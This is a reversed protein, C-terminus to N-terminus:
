REFFRIIQNDKMAIKQLDKIRIIPSYFYPLLTLTFFDDLKNQEATVNFTHNTDEYRSASAIITYNSFYDYTGNDYYWETIEQRPIWGSANTTASFEQSGNIQVARVNANNLPDGSTDNVYAKYYWKRTLYYTESGSGDFFSVNGTVNILINNTITADGTLIYYRIGAVTNNLTITDRITNNNNGSSFYLGALNEYLYCNEVVNNSGMSIGYQKQYSSCNNRNAYGNYGLTLANSSGSSKIINDTINAYYSGLLSVSANFTTMNYIFSYYTNQFDIGTSYGVSGDRVTSYNYVSAVSDGSSPNGTINYGELTLTQNNAGFVVCDEGLVNSDHVNRALHYETNESYLTRCNVICSGAYATRYDTTNVCQSANDCAQCRWNYEGAVLSKSFTHSSYNGSVIATENIIMNEGVSNSLILSINTLGGEVDTASCNFNILVPCISTNEFNNEPSEMVPVPPYEDYQYGFIVEVYDIEM